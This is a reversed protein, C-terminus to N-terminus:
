KMGAFSTEWRSIAAIVMNLRDQFGGQGYSQAQKVIKDVEDATLSLTNEVIKRQITRLSSQWGGVGKVPKLLYARELETLTVTLTAGGPEKERLKRMLKITQDAVRKNLMLESRQDVSGWDVTIAIGQKSVFALLAYLDDMARSGINQSIDTLSKEKDAAATETIQKLFDCAKSLLSSDRPNETNVDCFIRYSGGAAVRTSLITWDDVSLPSAKVKGKQKMFHSAWSLYHQFHTQFPGSTIWPLHEGGGTKSIIHFAINLPQVMREQDLSFVEKGNLAFNKLPVFSAPLEIPDIIRVEIPKLPDRATYLYLEFECHLISERLSIHSGIFQSLRQESIRFAMYISETGEEKGITSPVLDCWNLLWKSHKLPVAETGEKRRSHSTVPPGNALLLLPFDISVLIEARELNQLIEVDVAKGPLSPVNPLVSM